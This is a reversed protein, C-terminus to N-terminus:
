PYFQMKISSRVSIIWFISWTNTRKKTTLTSGWSNIHVSPRYPNWSYNHAECHSSATFRRVAWVSCSDTNTYQQIFVSQNNDASVVWYPPPSIAILKDYHTSTYLSFGQNCHSSVQCVPLGWWQQLRSIKPEFPWDPTLTLSDAGIQMSIILLLLLKNICCEVYLRCVHKYCTCCLFQLWISFQLCYLM